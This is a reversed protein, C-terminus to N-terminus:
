SLKQVGWAARKRVEENVGAENSLHKLANISQQDRLQVLSDIIAIQVLPSDERGLSEVLGKRVIPDSGFRQLADVAALRVDVSPDFRLTQLLTSLLEPDPQSVQNSWSIGRLRESASEQKLLSVTVMRHMDHVEERLQALENNRNDPSTTMRASLFGIILFLVAFVTQFVLRRSLSQDLWDFISRPKPLSPKAHDMGQKYGEIMALFRSQLDASPAQDPLHRLGEWIEALGEAEARCSACEALHAELKKQLVSNLRHAWLDPLHEKAENCNM